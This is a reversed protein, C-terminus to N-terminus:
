TGQGRAQHQITRLREKVQSILDRINKMGYLDGIKELIPEAVFFTEPKDTVLDVLQMLGNIQAQKSQSPNVSVLEITFDGQKLLGFDVSRYQRGSFPTEVPIQVPRDYLDAALLMLRELIRRVGMVSIHEIVERLVTISSEQLIQLETATKQYDVSSSGQFPHQAGALIQAEAKLVGITNDISAIESYDASYNVIDSRPDDTVAIGGAVGFFNSLDVHPRVAFRNGSRAMVEIKYNWLINILRQLELLDEAPGTSYPNGLEQMWGCFVVPNLGRPFVNPHFRVLVQDGAVALIMNRFEQERTKLYPFYYLDLDLYEDSPDLQREWTQSPNAYSNRASLLRVRDQNFYLDSELLEHKKKQHVYVWKTQEPNKANPDVYFDFPHFAELDPLFQEPADELSFQDNFAWRDTPLKTIKPFVAFFGSWTLNYIAEGIKESIMADKFLYKLGETLSDEHVMGAASKARVRFYDQDNPFITLKLQAYINKLQQRILPIFVQPRNRNNDRDSGQTSPIPLLDNGVFRCQAYAQCTKIREKKDSAASMAFQKFNRCISVIEEQTVADLMMNM